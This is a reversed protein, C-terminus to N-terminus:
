KVANMLPLEMRTVMKRKRAAGLGEHFVTMGGMLYMQIRIGEVVVM